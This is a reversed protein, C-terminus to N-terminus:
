ALTTDPGTQGLIDESVLAAWISRTEEVLSFLQMEEVLCSSGKHSIQRSTAQKGKSERRDQARVM